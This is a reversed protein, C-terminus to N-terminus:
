LLRERIKPTKKTQFKRFLIASEHNIKNSCTKALLDNLLGEAGSTQEGSKIKDACCQKLISTGWVDVM